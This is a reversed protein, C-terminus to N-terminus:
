EYPTFDYTSTSQILRTELSTFAHYAGNQQNYGPATM